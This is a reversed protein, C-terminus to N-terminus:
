PYLLLLPVDLMKLPALLVLINCACRGNQATIKWMRVFGEGNKLDNILQEKFIICFRSVFTIVDYSAIIIDFIDFTPTQMKVIYGLNLGTCGTQLRIM